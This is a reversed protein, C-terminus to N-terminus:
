EWTTTYIPTSYARGGELQFSSMRLSQSDNIKWGNTNCIVMTISSVGGNPKYDTWGSGYFKKNRGGGSIFNMYGIFQGRDGAWVECKKPQAAWYSTDATYMVLNHLWFKYTKRWYFDYWTGTNAANGTGWWCAGNEFRGVIYASIANWPGYGAPVTANSDGNSFYTNNKEPWGNWPWIVSWNDFTYNTGTQRM